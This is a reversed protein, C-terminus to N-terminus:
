CMVCLKRTWYCPGDSTGGASQDVLKYVSDPNGEEIPCEETLEDCYVEEEVVDAYTINRYM